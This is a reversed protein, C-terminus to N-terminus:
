VRREHTILFCRRRSILEALYELGRQKLSAIFLLRVIWRPWVAGHILVTRRFIDVRFHLPKDGQVGVMFGSAYRRVNLGSPKMVSKSLDMRVLIAIASDRPCECGNHKDFTAPERIPKWKSAM